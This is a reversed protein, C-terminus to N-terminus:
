KDATENKGDGFWQLSFSPNGKQVCFYSVCRETSNCDSNQCCEVVELDCNNLICQHNECRFTTPNGCDADTDCESYASCTGDALNCNANPDSCQMPANTCEWTGANCVATDITCLNGDDCSLQPSPCPNDFPRVVFIIVAVAIGAIILFLLLCLLMCCCCRKNKKKEPPPKEAPISSEEQAETDGQGGYHDYVPCKTLTHAHVQTM